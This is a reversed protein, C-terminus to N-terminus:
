LAGKGDHYYAILPFAGAEIDEPSRRERYARVLNKNRPHVFWSRGGEDYRISRPTASVVVASVSIEPVDALALEVSAQHEESDHLPVSRYYTNPHHALYTM